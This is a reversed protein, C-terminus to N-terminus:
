QFMRVVCGHVIGPIGDALHCLVDILDLPSFVQTLLHIHVHLPM